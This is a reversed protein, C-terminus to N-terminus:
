GELMLKDLIESGGLSKNIRFPNSLINRVELDSMIPARDKIGTMISDKQFRIIEMYPIKRRKGVPIVGIKGEDILNKLTDKGIQLLSATKAISFLKLEYKEM